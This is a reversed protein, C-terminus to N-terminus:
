NIVQRFSKRTVGDDFVVVYIGPSLTSLDIVLQNLGQSLGSIEQRFAEQGTSNILQLHLSGSQMAIWDLHLESQAPNPYPAFVVSNELTLCTRNDFQNEDAELKVEACVYQESGRLVIGTQLVLIEMQGPQLDTEVIETILGGGSIDIEVLLSKIAYNGNNTVGVAPHVTGLTKDEFLSFNSVAIDTHPVIVHIVKSFVDQCGKDSTATLDVMYDGLATFTYSPSTATSGSTGDGFNWSSAAADLSLNSFNVLLPPPGNEPTAMFGATPSPNITISKTLSYVCGSQHTTTMNVSYDGATSYSFQAPNTTGTNSGTFNWLWEAILDSGAQSNDTFTTQQGSCNNATTFDLTPPLPVTITKNTVAICGNSATTTLQASFDGSTGFVHVPNADTYTGTGIKWLWSTINTDAPSTFASPQNLCTPGASFDASPSTLIQITKQTSETCGYNTTVALTVDYPGPTNYTFTPNRQTSTGGSADGFSWAWSNLNSDTPNPTLDNFQSPTGSCSFPPLDLSFDVQPNSYINVPITKVNQCGNSANALLTVDYVGVTAYQHVENTQTSTNGDDFDWLYGVISGTSTNTFKIQDTNCKGTTTFDVTPGTLIGIVTKTLENSCGPISTILKVDSNGNTSFSHVMDRLTGSPVADVFWQYTLLDDFDGSTKNVFTFENNTCILGPPVDFAAVPPDYIKWSTKFINRCSNQGEVQVSVEYTGPTTYTHSIPDTAGSGSDGFDWLYSVLTSNTNVQFSKSVGTCQGPDADITGEPAVDTSISIVQSTVDTLNNQDFATLEIYYNDSAKYEVDQPQADTSSNVSVASSCDAAFDLRVLKGTRAEITFGRWLPTDKIIEISRSETQLTTVPNTLTSSSFDSGFQIRYIGNTSSRIFGNFNLGEKVLRVERGNPIMGLTTFTPSNFISSGFDMLVPNGNGQFSSVLGYWNSGTSIFDIGTPQIMSPDTISTNSVPANTFSSGMDVLTVTNNGNNALAVVHVGAGTILSLGFPTNLTAGMNGLDEILTPAALLGNGMSVRTIKNQFANAIFMYWVGGEYILDIPGPSTLKGELTGLETITPPSTLDAGFNLRLLGPGATNTVFALWAGESFVIKLAYYYISGTPLTLVTSPSPSMLLDNHCFDWVYNAASTSTNSLQLPEGLCGTPQVTFSAVPQAHLILGENLNLVLFFILGIVRVNM